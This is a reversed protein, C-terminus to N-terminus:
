PNNRHSTYGKAFDTEGDHMITAPSSSLANNMTTAILVLLLSVAFFYYSLDTLLEQSLYLGARKFAFILGSLAIMGGVILLHSRYNPFPPKGKRDKLAIYFITALMSSCYLYLEGNEFNKLLADLSNWSPKTSFRLIFVTILIPISSLFVKISVEEVAADFHVRKCIALGGIIWKGSIKERWSM